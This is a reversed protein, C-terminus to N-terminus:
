SEESEELELVTIEDNTYVCIDGAIELATRVLEPAELDFEDQIQGVIEEFDYSGPREVLGDITITWPETSLPRSFIATGM